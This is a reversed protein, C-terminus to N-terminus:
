RTASNEYNKLTNLKKIMFYIKPVVNRQVTKKCFGMLLNNGRIKCLVKFGHISKFAAREGKLAMNHSDWRGRNAPEFVLDANVTAGIIDNSLDVACTTKLYLTNCTLM